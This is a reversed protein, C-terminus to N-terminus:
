CLLLILNKKVINCLKSFVCFEIKRIINGVRENYFNLVM